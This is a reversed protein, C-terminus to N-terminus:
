DNKRWHSPFVGFQNAIFLHRMNAVNVVDVDPPYFEVALNPGFGAERKIQMLEDWFIDDKFRGTRDLETRNVSLRFTGDAEAFVQVLFDRSRFVGIRNELQGPNPQPWEVRPIKSLITGWKRNERHLYSRAEKLTM